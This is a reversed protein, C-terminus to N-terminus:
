RTRLCHRHPPDVLQRGRLAAGFRGASASVGNKFDGILEKKKTDVSIVPQDQAQFARAQRSISEFQANRDPHQAGERTKQNAQLSYGMARLLEGVKTASIAHGAKTLEEALRAKSKCTWRLPSEPDGRTTPDILADLAAVLKPDRVEVRPRGAGPRRVRQERPPEAPPRRRLEELDRKGAVIRKHSIGTAETVRIVGGYGIAEAEAALWLRTMREDMVPALAAFKERIRDVDRM